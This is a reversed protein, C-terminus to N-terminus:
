GFFHFYKRVLSSGVHSTIWYAVHKVNWGSWRFFRRADSMDGKLYHFRARTGCIKRIAFEVEKPYRSKYSEVVYLSYYFDKKRYTFDLSLNNAQVYRHVLSRNVLASARDEFLRLLWDYDVAGFREEFRIGRLSKHILLSSLYPSLHHRRLMINMFTSNTNEYVYLDDCQDYTNRYIINNSSRNHVIYGTHVIPVRFKASARLQLQIKDPLFHDDQDLLCIWEGKAASLGANRGRNPGGSNDDSTILRCGLNKAIKITDDISGDDCVLIEKSFDGVQSQVSLITQEIVSEANYTPIIISVLM